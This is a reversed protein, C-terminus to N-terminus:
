RRQGTGGGQTWEHLLWLARGLYFHALDRSQTVGDLKIRKAKPILILRRLGVDTPVMAGGQKGGM